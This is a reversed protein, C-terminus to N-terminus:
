GFKLEGGTLLIYAQEGLLVSIVYIAQNTKRSSPKVSGRHDPSFAM